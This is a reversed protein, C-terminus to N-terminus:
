EGGGAAEQQDRYWNRWRRVQQDRTNPTDDPASSFDEGTIQSLSALAANQVDVPATLLSLLRPVYIRDELQGMAVVARRSIEDDADLALRDLAAAGEAAHLRALSTAVEVRLQKDQTLLLQVLPKPNDLTGVAGLARVASLVVTSNLDALVPLLVPVHRRDGHAALYECARRRVEPSGNGIALYAMDVAEPRSDKATVALLSQWVVPDNEAKAIAGLRALALPGVLQRDAAVVMQAAATRRVPTEHSQIAALAAFLPSVQPLVEEYVVEPLPPPAEDRQQDLQGHLREDLLTTLTPGFAVLAEIAQRRRAVGLQPDRLAQVLDNVKGLQEAALQGAPKSEVHVAASVQDIPAFEAAWRLRLEGSAATRAEATGDYPFKAAAAWRSGLERAADKRMQYGGESLAALLVPGAQTLPWSAVSKLTCKQVGLSKDHLLTQALTVTEQDVPESAGPPRALSEAVAQRVLWSKDGAADFVAESVGLKALGSIAAARTVESPHKRLKGLASKSQEGGLNALAAIAAMRVNLDLDDLGRTLSEQAGAPRQVAIAELLAARVLPSTDDHLELASEPFGTRAPNIWALLAARRVEPEPSQLAQVFQPNDEVAGRRALQILLEAHLRPLYAAQAPGSFQGFDNSLKRLAEAAVPDDLHALMEAAASRLPPRLGVNRVTTALREIAAVDGSRALVIAANGAVIFNGNDLVATLEARHDGATAAWAELAQHQWFYGSPGPERPALPGAQVWRDDALAKPLEAPKDASTAAPAPDAQGAKAGVKDQVAQETPDEATLLQWPLHCGGLACLMLSIVTFRRRDSRFM